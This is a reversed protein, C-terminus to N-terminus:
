LRFSSTHGDCSKRLNVRSNSVQHHAFQLPISRDVGARDAHRGFISRDRQRAIHVGIEAFQSSLARGFPDAAHPGDGIVDLYSRFTPRVSASM